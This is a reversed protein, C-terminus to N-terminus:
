NKERCKKTLTLLCVSKGNYTVREVERGRCGRRGVVVGCSDRGLVMDLVLSSTSRLLVFDVVVDMKGDDLFSFFEVVVVVMDVVSGLKSTANVKSEILAM